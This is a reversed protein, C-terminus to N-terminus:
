EWGHDDDDDSSYTDYPGIIYHNVPVSEQEALRLASYQWELTERRTKEIREDRAALRREQRARRQARERPSAFVRVAGGSGQGGRWRWGTPTDVQRFEVIPQVTNHNRASDSLYQRFREEEAERDAEIRSNRFEPQRGLLAEVVDNYIVKRCFICSPGRSSTLGLQHEVWISWCERCIQKKHACSCGTDYNHHEYCMFCEPLILSSM